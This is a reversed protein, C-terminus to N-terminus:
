HELAQHLVNANAVLQNSVTPSGFCLQASSRVKKIGIPSKLLTGKKAKPQLMQLYLSPLFSFPLLVNMLIHHVGSM